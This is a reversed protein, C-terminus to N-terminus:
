RYKRPLRWWEGLWRDFEPPRFPVTGALPYNTLEGFVIRDGICYLDVRVFDTETGLAEAVELLEPLMAPRDVDIGAPVRWEAELRQWDPTYLTRTHVGYRDFDVEVMRVRGDFVFFKYDKPVGGEDELLEEVLIRRPVNRYAWEERKYPRSIWDECLAVLMDRDLRDPHVLAASWTGRSDPLEGDRSAFDAVIVVAGSAHTAKVVFEGPLEAEKLTAPASTVLHLRSLIGAGVREQVYARVALKDAFTTLLPRRDALMKYRVKENFTVPEPMRALERRVAIREGV